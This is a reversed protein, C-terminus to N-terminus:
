ARLRIPEGDIKEPKGLLELCRLRIWDDAEWPEGSPYRPKHDRYELIATLLVAAGYCRQKQALSSRAQRVNKGQRIMVEQAWQKALQLEAELDGYARVVHPDCSVALEPPSPDAPQARKEQLENWRRRLTGPSRIADQFRDDDIAWVFLSRIEEHTRGDITRMRRVDNAWGEWNPERTSPFIAKVAAFMRRALVHDKGTPRRRKLPPVSVQLERASQLEGLLERASQFGYAATSAPKVPEIVPPSPPAQTDTREGVGLLPQGVGGASEGDMGGGGVGSIESLYGRPYRIEPGPPYGRPNRNATERTDGPIAIRTDGPLVASRAAPRKFQPQERDTEKSRDRRSVTWHPGGVKAIWNAWNNPAHATSTADHPDDPDPPDIKWWGLAFMASRPPTTTGHRTALILGRAELEAFSEILMYPNTVGYARATERTFTLSGNNYGRYQAALVTLLARAPYPSTKYADSRLVEDPLLAFTEVDGGRRGKQRLLRRQSIESM